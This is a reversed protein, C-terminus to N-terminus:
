AFHLYGQPRVKKVAGDPRVVSLGCRRDVVEGILTVPTDIGALGRARLRGAEARKMTFLLEFDEGERVARAFSTAARSLPVDREYIRAGAGSAELVRGLDLLLGDSIDIMAGVTYASVLARAEAVRPTFDLHKGKASGGISGTVFILDGAKAGGRTVLRAKEVEGILSVDIVIKRSRSLDGGVINVGSEAALRKIGNYIGDAFAVPLDAPVALSVVAYRPIGGMAAIDSINRGLAKRGIQRPSATARRFHVDEVLMDCTYLLRKKPTWAIVATDDGPGTIVSRDLRVGRVLRRILAAEGMDKVRM